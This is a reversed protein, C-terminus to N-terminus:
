CSCNIAMSANPAIGVICYICVACLLAELILLAAGPIIRLGQVAYRRHRLVCLRNGVSGGNVFWLEADPM